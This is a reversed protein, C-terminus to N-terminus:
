IIDKRLKGLVTLLLPDDESNIYPFRKMLFEKLKLRPYENLVHISKQIFTDGITEGPEGFADNDQDLNEYEAIASISNNVEYFIEQFYNNKLNTLISEIDDENLSYKKKAEDIKYVILERISDGPSFFRTQKHSEINPKYITAKNRETDIEEMIADTIDPVNPKVVASIENVTHTLPLLEQTTSNMGLSSSLEKSSSRNQM